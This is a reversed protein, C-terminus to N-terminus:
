ASSTVIRVSIRTAVASPADILTGQPVALREVTQEVCGM